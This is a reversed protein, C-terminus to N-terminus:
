NCRNGDLTTEFFHDSFKLDAKFDRRSRFVNGKCIKIVPVQVDRTYSSSHTSTQDDDKIPTELRLREIAAKVDLLHNASELANRKCRSDREAAEDELIQYGADITVSTVYSKDRVPNSNPPEPSIMYSKDRVPNHNPPEAGQSAARRSDTVSTVYSKDRVPNSNPPEQSAARRPDTLSRLEAAAKAKASADSAPRRPTPRIIQKQQAAATTDLILRPSLHVGNSWSM